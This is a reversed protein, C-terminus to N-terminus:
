SVRYTLKNHFIMHYDSGMHTNNACKPGRKEDHNHRTSSPPGTVHSLHYQMVQVYATTYQVCPCVNVVRLIDHSLGFEGNPGENKRNTISIKSQFHNSPSMFHRITLVNNQMLSDYKPVISFKDCPLLFLKGKQPCLM